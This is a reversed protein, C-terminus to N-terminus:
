LQEIALWKCVEYGDKIYRDANKGEAISLEYAEQDSSCVLNVEFCNAVCTGKTLILSCTFMQEPKDDIIKVLMAGPYGNQVFSTDMYRRAEELSLPNSLSEYSSSLVLYKSM